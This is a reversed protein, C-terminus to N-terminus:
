GPLERALEELVLAAEHIPCAGALIGDSLAVTRRGNEAPYPPAGHIRRLMEQWLAVAEPRLETRWRNNQECSQAIVKATNQHWDLKTNSYILRNRAHENAQEMARMRTVVKAVRRRLSASTLTRLDEIAPMPQDQDAQAVVRTLLENVTEQLAREREFAEKAEKDALAKEREADFSTRAALRWASLTATVGIAVLGWLQWESLMSQVGLLGLLVGVANISAGTLAPAALWHRFPPM